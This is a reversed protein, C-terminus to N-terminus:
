IIQKRRETHMELQAQPSCGWWAVVTTVVTVCKEGKGLPAPLVGHMGFSSLLGHTM